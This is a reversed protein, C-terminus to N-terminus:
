CLSVARRFPANADNFATFQSLTCGDSSPKQRIADFCPAGNAHGVPFGRAAIEWKSAMQAHDRASRM